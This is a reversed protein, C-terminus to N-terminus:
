ASVSRSRRPAPPKRSSPPVYGDIRIMRQGHGFRRVFHMSCYATGDPGLWRSRSPAGLALEEAVCDPCYLSM